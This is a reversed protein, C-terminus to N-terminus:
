WLTKEIRRLKRRLFQHNPIQQSVLSWFRVSHNMEKLHCLEHVVIYDLLEQPLFVIRYNFSLTLNSSCSGWRSSQDRIVIKEYEFNYFKNFHELRNRVLVKASAKNELFNLRNKLNETQTSMSFDINKRIWAENDFIFSLCHSKTVLPPHTLYLENEKIKLTLRTANKRKQIKCSIKTGDSFKILQNPM